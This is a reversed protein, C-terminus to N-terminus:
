HRKVIIETDATLGPAPKLADLPHSGADVTQAHTLTHTDAHTNTNKHKCVTAIWM